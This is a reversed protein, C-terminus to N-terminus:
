YLALKPRDRAPETSEVCSASMVPRGNPAVAEPVEVAVVPESLGGEGLRGGASWSRRPRTWWSWFEVRKELNSGLGGAGGERLWGWRGWARMWLGMRLEIGRSRSRSAWSSAWTQFCIRSPQNEREGKRALKENRKKTSEKAM